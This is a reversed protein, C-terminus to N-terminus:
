APVSAKDLTALTEGHRARLVSVIRASAKGDGYPSARLAHSVSCGASSLVAQAESTIRHRDTGVLRVLGTACGEPRETTDRLVLVPVGFSPAEEQIGGSDTM